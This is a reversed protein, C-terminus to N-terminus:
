FALINSSDSRRQTNVRPANACSAVEVLLLEAVASVVAVEVLLLEAAASVVTFRNRPGPAFMPSAKMPETTLASGQAVIYPSAHM